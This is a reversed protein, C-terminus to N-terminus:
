VTMWTQFDSIFQNVVQETKYHSTMDKFFKPPITVIHAGARAADRIDLVSRMSGTIIESEIHSREFIDRVTRVVLAPDYDSADLVGRAELAEREATFQEDKGADRIRAWFLSVYKAGARAAMVAQTVTMCATCNVTIGLTSLKKITELENWGIHVKVGMRPYAFQHMFRQAQELIEQQDRSFVEISLHIGPQYKKILEVIKGVHEEFSSKPEKALLSPNTTIGHAFGRKLAEELDTLNASDIFIKM